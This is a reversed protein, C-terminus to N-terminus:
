GIFKLICNIRRVEINQVLEKNKSFPKLVLDSWCVNLYIRVSKAPEETPESKKNDTVFFKNYTEQNEQNITLKELRANM